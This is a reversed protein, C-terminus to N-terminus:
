IRFASKSPIEIYDALRSRVLYDALDEGNPLLLMVLVPSQVQVTVRFRKDVVINHIKDMIEKTWVGDHGKPTNPPKVNYLNCEIIDVAIDEFEVKRRIDRIHVYDESGYDPFLVTVMDPREELAIVTARYWKDLFRVSM